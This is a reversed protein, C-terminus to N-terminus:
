PKPSPTGTPVPAPTPSSSSPTTSPSPSPSSSASPPATTATPTPSAPPTETDGTPNDTGPASSGATFTHTGGYLYVQTGVGIQRLLWTADTRTVRICGHSAPYAPVSNSGHIAWGKYFYQPDYLTGLDAKREGIIRRQVTFYGTPTLARAKAGSKQLYTEGNGSSVPLVRSVAGGKVVYLVQKTLDVEVRDASGAGRLVPKKPAKLAALTAKGVVGDAGLGNVKQFAMVASRLAPGREGDIPAIYYRQQTLQRQVLKVDYSPPAPRTRTPSVTPAPAVTPVATTLPATTPDGAPASPAGIPQDAALPTAPEGASCGALALAATVLVATLGAAPKRTRVPTEEQPRRTDYPFVGLM